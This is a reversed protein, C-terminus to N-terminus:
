YGSSEHQIDDSAWQVHFRRCCYNFETIVKCWEIAEAQRKATARTAPELQVRALRAGSEGSQTAGSQIQTRPSRRVRRWCLCVQPRSDIPLELPPRGGRSDSTQSFLLSLCRALQYSTHGRRATQERMSGRADLARSCNWDYIGNCRQAGIASSEAGFRGVRTVKKGNLTSTAAGSLCVLHLAFQDRRRHCAHSESTRDRSLVM